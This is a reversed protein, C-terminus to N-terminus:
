SPRNLRGKGYEIPQCWAGNPPRVDVRRRPLHVGVEVRRQQPRVHALEHDAVLQQGLGLAVQRGLIGGGAQPRDDGPTASSTGLGGVARGLTARATRCRRWAGPLMPVECSPPVIRVQPPRNLSRCPRAVDGVERARDLDVRREGGVVDRTRDGVDAPEPAGPTSVASSTSSARRRARQARRPRRRPGARRPGPGRPRGCSGRPPAPRRLDPRQGPSEVGPPRAVVLDGRVQPEPRAPRDVVEVRGRRSRAPARRGRRARPRRRDQRARGVDLRGLRDQEGM